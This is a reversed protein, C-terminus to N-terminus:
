DYHERFLYTKLMRKFTTLEEVQRMSDPLTNWLAPAAIAFARDHYSSKSKSKPVSLLNSGSSRLCRTPQYPVILEQLYIPALGHLCKFTLLFIKYKIRQTVPLWHLTKLVPTIHEHKRSGTILRAATNQVRQLHQIQSQPLGYLLSNCYDLKSTILAHVLRELAPKTLHSRIKGIKYLQFFASSCIQKIHLEMKANDDMIVGLNRISKAPTIETQGIKIVPQIIPHTRVPHIVLVETKQDNMMLKNACMWSHILAAVKEMHEVTRTIDYEDRPQFVSYIQTDDAYFHYDINYQQLLAGLSRTYLTFLIPGLVSGQPVGCELMKPDSDKGNISIKQHRGTLYSKFWDYTTGRLGLHELTSMLIHHDVTDFAASLDLLILIVGKKQGLACLIDSQVKLLATETSHFKRYASQYDELLNNDALYGNLRVAVAKELVKSIFKLNSVPRFNKM